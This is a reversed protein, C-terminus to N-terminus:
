VIYHKELLTDYIITIDTYSDMIKFAHMPLWAIFCQLCLCAPVTIQKTTESCKSAMALPLWCAVLRCSHKTNQRDPPLHLQLLLNLSIEKQTESVKILLLFRTTVRVFLRDSVQLHKFQKTWWLHKNLGRCFRNLLTNLSNQRTNCPIFFTM